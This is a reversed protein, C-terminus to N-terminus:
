WGPMRFKSLSKQTLQSRRSRSDNTDASRIRCEHCNGSGERWTAAFRLQLGDLGGRPKSEKGSECEIMSGQRAEFLRQRFTNRGRINCGYHPLWILPRSLNSYYIPFLFLWTPIFGSADRYILRYVIMSDRHGASLVINSLNLCHMLRHSM